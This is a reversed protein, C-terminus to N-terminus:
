GRCHGAIIREIQACERAIESYQESSVASAALAQRVAEGLALLRAGPVPSSSELARAADAEALSVSIGLREQMAIRLRAILEPLLEKEVGARRTLWAISEVYERSSRHRETLEPRPPGLRAGRAYSFLLACALFQAAVVWLARAAAATRPSSHRHHSEDFLMPGRAALAQWVEINDAEEIRGNEAVDPGAFIWLEGDGANRWWGYVARPSAAIPLADAGEVKAGRHGAVSLRRDGSLPSLWLEVAASTRAVGPARLDDTQLWEGDEVQLWSDLDAQAQGLPQSALYVLNGGREVFSRVAALERRDLPRAAPAPIVVTQIKAAIRELSQDEATVEYGAERLYLYLARIGAPGPNRISATPTSPSPPRSAALAVALAGALLAAYIWIAQSRM